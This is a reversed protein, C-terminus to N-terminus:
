DHIGLHRDQGAAVESARDDLRKFTTFRGGSRRLILVSPRQDLGIWLKQGADSGTVGSDRQLGFGGGHDHFVQDRLRRATPVNKIQREFM